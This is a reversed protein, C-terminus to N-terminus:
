RRFFAISRSKRPALPGPSSHAKALESFRPSRSALRGRTSIGLASIDRPRPALWALLHLIERATPSIRSVSQEWVRALSVPYNVPDADHYTLTPAPTKRWEELWEAPSQRTEHIYSVVLELALRLHDVEQALADLTAEGESQTPLGAHLHSRLYERAEEPTFLALEQRRVGGLDGGYRSTILVACAAVKPLLERL